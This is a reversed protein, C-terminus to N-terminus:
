YLRVFHHDPEWGKEMLHCAITEQQHLLGLILVEGDGLTPLAEALLTAPDFAGQLSLNWVPLCLTIIEAWDGESCLWVRRVGRQALVELQANTLDKLERFSSLTRQLYNVTLRSKESFGEPTLFYAWRRASVQKARVWGKKLVTQLFANTLGLSLGMEQALQRQSIRENEAVAEFLTLTRQEESNM